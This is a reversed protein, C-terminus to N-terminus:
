EKSAVFEVIRTESQMRKVAQVAEDKNLDHDTFRVTYLGRKPGDALVAKHAELFNTIEASNAQPVFRIVALQADSTAASALQVNQSSGRENVVVATLVVAQVALAVAVGAASWALARPSLSSLFEALRGALDFGTPRPARKRDGEIATFLKEMARTSPAGLSENLRVTESLEERVVDYHRALDEDHALAAEVREADRRCLTGAAHWPLLVEIEQREPKGGSVINM